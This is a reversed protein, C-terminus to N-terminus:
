QVTLMKHLTFLAYFYEARWILLIELPTFLILGSFIEDTPM